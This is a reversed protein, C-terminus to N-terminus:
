GVYFQRVVLVMGSLMEGELKTCGAAACSDGKVPALIMTSGTPCRGVWEDRACGDRSRLDRQQLYALHASDEPLEAAKEVGSVFGLKGCGVLFSRSSLLAGYLM